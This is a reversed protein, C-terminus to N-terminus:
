KLIHIGINDKSLSCWVWVNTHTHTHTHVNVSDGDIKCCELRILIDLTKRRSKNYQKRKMNSSETYSFPNNTKRKQVNWKVDLNNAHTRPHTLLFHLIKRAFQPRFPLAKQFISFNSNWCQRISSFILVWASHHKFISFVYVCWHIKIPWNVDFLLQLM